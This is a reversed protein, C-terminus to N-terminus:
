TKECPMAPWGAFMPIYKQAFAKNLIVDIGGFDNVEGDWAQLQQAYKSEVQRILDYAIEQTNTEQASIIAMYIHDGQEICVKRGDELIMSRLGKKFSDQAFSQIASFMSSLVQSDRTPDFENTMHKIQRGDRYVLFVDKVSTM